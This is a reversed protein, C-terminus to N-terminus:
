KPRSKAAEAMKENFASVAAAPLSVIREDGNRGFIKFSLGDVAGQRLQTPTLYVNYTEDYVCSGRGSCSAVKRDVQKFELPAGQNNSARSYFRWESGSYVEAWQVYTRTTGAKKEIAGYLGYIQTGNGERKGGGMEVEIAPSYPDNKIVPGSPDSNKPAAATTYGASSYNYTSSPSGCAALALTM